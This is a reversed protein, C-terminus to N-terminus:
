LKQIRTVQVAGQGQSTCNWCGANRQIKQRRTSQSDLIQYLPPEETRGFQLVRLYAETRIKTGRQERFTAKGLSKRREWPRHKLNQRGKM